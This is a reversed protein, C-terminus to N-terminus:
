LLGFCTSKSPDTRFLTQFRNRLYLSIDDIFMDVQQRILEIIGSKM